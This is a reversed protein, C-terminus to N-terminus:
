LEDAKQFLSKNYKIQGRRINKLIGRGDARLAISYWSVFLYDDIDLESLLQEHYEHCMVCLPVTNDRRDPGGLRKPLKHHVTLQDKPFKRGYCWGMCVGDYRRRVSISNRNLHNRCDGWAVRHNDHNKYTKGCHHCIRLCTEPSHRLSEDMINDCKPCMKDM